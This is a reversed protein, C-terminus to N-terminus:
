SATESERGRTEVRALREELESVKRAGEYLPNTLLGVFFCVLNGIVVYLLFCVGSAMMWLLCGTAAVFGTIAAWKNIRIPLFALAMLGLIGNTCIGMLKGWVIQVYAIQMFLLGMVIALAGGVVTIGRALKLYAEDTVETKGFRKYFDEICVATGSNLASDISSMAAALIAAVVVGAVGAPMDHLIFFPYIQDAKAPLPVSPPHVKYFVFLATGLFYFLFGLPIYGVIAIWVSANAKATSRTAMYRQAIDQQTGYIRITQFISELILWMTVIKTYDFGPVMVRFKHHEAAIAVFSADGIGYMVFGVTLLAAGVFIVVQIADTWVVAEMGGMVTYMTIVAGMVVITLWLPAGTVTSFALAPLYLVIGMRGVAFILFSISGILRASVDIRRELYEYVSIVGAERYRPLVVRTIVIATIILCPLQVTYTWDHVGYSMGPLGMMTLASLYTGLISLGVVIFNMQGDAIFFGRTGKIRRSCWWGIALMGVLYLSLVAYNASGFTAESGSM